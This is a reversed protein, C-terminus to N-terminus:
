LTDLAWKQGRIVVEYDVRERGIVRGADAIVEFEIHGARAASLDFVHTYGDVVRM